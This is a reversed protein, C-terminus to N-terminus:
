TICKPIYYKMTKNLPHDVKHPMVNIYEAIYVGCINTHCKRVLINVPAAIHCAIYQETLM